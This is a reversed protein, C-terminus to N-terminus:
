VVIVAGACVILRFEFRAFRLAGGTSPIFAHIAFSLKFMTGALITMTLSM